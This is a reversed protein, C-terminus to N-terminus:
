KVDSKTADRNTTKQTSEYLTYEETNEDCQLGKNLKDSILNLDTNSMTENRLMKM